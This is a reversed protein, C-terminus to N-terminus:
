YKTNMVSQTYNKQYPYLIDFAMSKLDILTPLQERIKFEIAQYQGILLRQILGSWDYNKSMAQASFAAYYKRFYQGVVYLSNEQYLIVKTSACYFAQDFAM